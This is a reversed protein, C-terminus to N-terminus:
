VEWVGGGGGGFCHRVLKSAVAGVDGALEALLDVNMIPLRDALGPLLASLAQAALRALLARGGRPTSTLVHGPVPQAGFRVCAANPGLKSAANGLSPCNATRQAMCAGAATWVGAWRCGSRWSRRVWAAAGRPWVAHWWRWGTHILTTWGPTPANSFLLQVQALLLM